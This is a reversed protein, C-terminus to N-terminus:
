PNLEILRYGGEGASVVVGSVCYTSLAYVDWSDMGQTNLTTADTLARGDRFM